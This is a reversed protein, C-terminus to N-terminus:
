FSIMPVSKQYYTEIIWHLLSFSLLLTREGSCDLWVDEKHDCYRVAPPYHANVSCKTMNEDSEDCKVRNMVIPVSNM